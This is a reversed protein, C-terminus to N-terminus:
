GDPSEPDNERDSAGMKNGKGKIIRAPAGVALADDPVDGRVVAGAGTAARKGIKTPAVLMTDSGIYADDEIVTQHKERGDWNCTITGAGVNAGRGITADGLYALHNAKSDEGLTAKKAEVFTGIKAGRKLVTGPRLSAYPGVSADPGITSELCVAFTVTAREGVETDVLRAQPGIEARDGIVTAGELFTFPHIVADRGITVSADIHTAEPDVITAGQEMWRECARRRLLGAARALQARSNVGHVEDQHTRYAAVVEGRETLLGVVDTLYYEEQTNASDIEKLAERLKPADFVYVGANIEDIAHEEYSADSDEVIRTVDGNDDRVIRGYGTADTVRATLVAAAADRERHLELLSRLTEAELLPTDGPVVMVDGGEPELADLGVRTADGTGRPPDQVAYTLGDGFGEDAIAKEIEAKRRSTVLVMPELALPDLAALVHVVLPRGAAAHLVKPVESKMRTGEGAGLVIAAAKAGRQERM